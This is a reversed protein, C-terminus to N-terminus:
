EIWDITQTHSYDVFTIEDDLISDSYKGDFMVDLVTGEKFYNDSLEWKDGFSDIITTIGTETNNNIVTAKTWYYDVSNKSTKCYNFSSVFSVTILTIMIIKKFM